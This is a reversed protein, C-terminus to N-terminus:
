GDVVLSHDEPREEKAKHTTLVEILVERFDLGRYAMEAALDELASSFARSWPVLPDSKVPKQQHASWEELFDEVDEWPDDPEESLRNRIARSVDAANTKACRMAHRREFVERRIERQSDLTTQVSPPLERKSM